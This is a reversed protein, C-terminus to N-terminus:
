VLVCDARTTTGFEPRGYIDPTINYTQAQARNPTTFAVLLYTTMILLLYIPIIIYKKM